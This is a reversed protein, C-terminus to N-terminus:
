ATAKLRRHLQAVYSDYSREPKAETNEKVTRAKTGIANDRLNAEEGKRAEEDRRRAEEERRRAEEERKKAEEAIRKEERDVVTDLIKSTLRVTGLRYAFDQAPCSLETSCIACGRPLTEGLVVFDDAQVGKATGVEIKQLQLTKENGLLMALSRLFITGMGTITSIDLEHVRNHRLHELLVSLLAKGGRSVNIPGKLSFRTTAGVVSHHLFRSADAAVKVQSHSFGTDWEFTDSLVSSMAEHSLSGVEIAGLRALTAPAKSGTAVLARLDDTCLGLGNIKVVKVRFASRSEGCPYVRERPVSPAGGLGILVGLNPFSARQVSNRRLQTTRLLSPRKVAGNEEDDEALAARLRQAFNRFQEGTLYLSGLDLENWGGGQGVDHEHLIFATAIHALAGGLDADEYQQKKFSTNSSGTRPVNANAHNGSTKGITVDDNSSAKSGSNLLIDQRLSQRRHFTLQVGDDASEILGIAEKLDGVEHGNVSILVAGVHVRGGKEITGVQGSTLPIFEKVYPKGSESEDLRLGLGNSTDSVEVAVPGKNEFDPGVICLRSLGRREELLSALFKGEPEKAIASLTISIESPLPMRGKEGEVLGERLNILGSLDHVVGQSFVIKELSKGDEMADFIRKLGYGGDEM